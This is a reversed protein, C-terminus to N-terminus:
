KSQRAKGVAARLSSTGAGPRKVVSRWRQVVAPTRKKAAILKPRSSNARQKEVGFNVVELVRVALVVQGWVEFHTGCSWSEIPDEGTTMVM